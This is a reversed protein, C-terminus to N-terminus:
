GSQLVRCRGAPKVGKWCEVLRQASLGRDFTPAVIKPKRGGNRKDRFVVAGRSWRYVIKRDDGAKRRMRRASGNSLLHGLIGTISRTDRRIGADKLRACVETSTIAGVSPLVEYVAACLTM